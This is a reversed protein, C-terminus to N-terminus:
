TMRPDNMGKNNQDRTAERLELAMKRMAESVVVSVSCSRLMGIAKLLYIQVIYLKLETM